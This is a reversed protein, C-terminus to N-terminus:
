EPRTPTFRPARHVVQGQYTCVRPQMGLSYTWCGINGSPSLRACSTRLRNTLPDPPVPEYDYPKIAAVSFPKVHNGDRIYVTKGDVQVVPYPGLCEQSRERYVYVLEGPSFSLDAGPPTLCALARKIRLEFVIADMERRATEMALFRTSQSPLKDNLSFRPLTGYVVLTPDLGEPGMHDNM